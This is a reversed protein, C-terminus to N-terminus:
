NLASYIINAVRSHATFSELTHDVAYFSAVLSYEPDILLRAGGSGAHDIAKNSRLFGLDDKKKVNWGLAWNSGFWRGQWFSEPLAANHDTSLLRVSAPSLIRVSGLTGEQLIMQGFVTMDRMTSKLGGGGSRSTLIHDSNLWDAEQYSPDRRVIRPWLAEPLVWYTDTMGLPEFLRRRAYTDIDEGTVKEILRRLLDYGFSCYSFATFPRRVLPARRSLVNYVEWFTNGDAETEGLGLMVGAAQYAARKEEDSANESMVIGLEDRIHADVFSWYPEDGMGSMGSTHSLVHWLLVEDKYEGTFDPFYTRLQEWFDIVGEEQLIALLVAIVPKTVSAVPYIADTTLPPGGPAAVGYARDFVVVGSRLVRAAMFAHKGNKVAETCFKDLNELRDFHVGLMNDCTGASSNKSM